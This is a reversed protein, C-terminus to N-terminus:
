SVFTTSVFLNFHRIRALKKLPEPIAPAADKLVARLRPYVDDRRGGRALHRCIVAQLPDGDDRPPEDDDPLGLRGGLRDALLRNLPVEGGGPQPVRLLELGVIPVVRRDEIFELLDDWVSAPPVDPM